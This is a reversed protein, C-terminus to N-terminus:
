QVTQQTKPNAQWETEGETEVDYHGIEEAYTKTMHIHIHHEKKGKRAEDTKDIKEQVAKAIYENLAVGLENSDFAARRHIEPSIRINFTGKYPKEPSKGIEECLELYDDVASEFEKKLEALSEAEYTILDCVHLVKGYMLAAEVDCEISGQYKKYQLIKDGM